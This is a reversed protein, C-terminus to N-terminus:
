VKTVVGGGGVGVWVGGWVASGKGRSCGGSVEEPKCDGAADDGGAADGAAADGGAAASAPGPTQDDEPGYFRLAAMKELKEWSMTAAMAKLGSDVIPIDSALLALVAAAASSGPRGSSFWWHSLM